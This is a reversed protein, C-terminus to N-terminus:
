EIEPSHSVITAGLPPNSVDMKKLEDDLLKMILASGSRFLSELAFDIEKRSLPRIGNRSISFERELQNWAAAKSYGGFVGLAKDLAARLQDKPETTIEIEDADSSIESM